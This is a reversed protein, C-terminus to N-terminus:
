PDYPNAQYPLLHKSNLHKEEKKPNMFKVINKKSIFESHLKLAMNEIADISMAYLNNISKIQLEELKKKELSTIKIHDSKIKLSIQKKRHYHNLYM